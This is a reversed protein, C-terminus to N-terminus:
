YEGGKEERQERDDATSSYICEIVYILAETHLPPLIQTRMKNKTTGVAVATYYCRGCSVRRSVNRREVRQLQTVGAYLAISGNTDYPTIFVETKPESMM